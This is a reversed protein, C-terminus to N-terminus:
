LGPNYHKNKDYWFYGGIGVLLALTVGINIYMISRLSEHYLVICITQMLAAMCTFLYVYMKETALCALAIINVISYLTIFIAFIGLYESAANFSNGFLLYVIIRPFVSYLLTVGLSITTVLIISLRILASTDSKKAFREAIVPFLVTGIASSAYFIVKGLVAVSSYIGADFASLYHKVLVIDMSYLATMGLLTFFTPLSYTVIDKKTINMREEKSSFMFRLPIFFLIYLILTMLFSAVMTMEVGQYAFPISLILKLLSGGATLAAYWIFLQFGQVVSINLATLTTIVFISFVWFVVRPGSLHLFDAVLPSSIWLFAFLPVLVTILTKTMKRFLYKAQGSSDSAKCTSFYKILVTQLVTTPVSFIYLLSILSSLEGYGSPGLIRGIVLHYLYSGINAIMAGFFVLLSNCALSQSFLRKM